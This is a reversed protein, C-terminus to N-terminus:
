LRFRSGSSNVFEKEREGMDALECFSRRDGRLATRLIGLDGKLTPSSCTVREAYNLTYSSISRKYVKFQGIAITHNNPAVM